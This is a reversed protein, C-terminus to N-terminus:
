GGEETSTGGGGSPSPPPFTELKQLTFKMWFSRFGSRRESRCLAVKDHMLQAHSVSRKRMVKGENFRYLM